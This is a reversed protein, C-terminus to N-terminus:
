GSAAASRMRQTRDSMPRIRLQGGAVPRESGRTLTSNVRCENVATIPGDPDPLLM